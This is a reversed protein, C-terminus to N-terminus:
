RWLRKARLSAGREPPRARSRDRRAVERSRSRGVVRRRDLDLPGGIHLVPVEGAVERHLQGSGASHRRERDRGGQRRLELALDGLIGRCRRKRGNLDRRRSEDVEAQRVMCQLALDVPHEAGRVGPAADLRDSGAGHVDLEHRGVRGARQVDAVGSACEDAVQESTDELGAALTHRALVVEVVCTGLNTIEACAHERDPAVLGQGLVPIVALVHAVERELDRVRHPGLRGCRIGVSRVDETAPRGCPDALADLGTEGAEAHAEVHPGALPSEMRLAPHVTRDIPQALMAVDVLLVARQPETRGGETVVLIAHDDARVALRGVEGRVDAVHGLLEAAAEVVEDVDPTGVVM